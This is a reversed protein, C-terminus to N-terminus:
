AVNGGASNPGFKRCAGVTFKGLRAFLFEVLGPGNWGQIESSARSFNTIHAPYTGLVQSSWECCTRGESDSAVGRVSIPRRHLPTRPPHLRTMCPLVESRARPFPLKTLNRDNNPNARPDCAALSPKYPLLPPKAIVITRKVCWFNFIGM